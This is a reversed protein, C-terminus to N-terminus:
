KVIVVSGAKDPLPTYGIQQEACFRVVADRVGKYGENNFDHVMIYGGANLRPYFYVLGNYIPDYLDTDLSVFAFTDRVDDATEPFYGKKIICKGPHPMIALVQQVSTESFDQNATSYSEGLEKKKDRNDFGEFTDFLYLARDPFYANLYRAFKGKFVGVEAISGPVKREKIENSILELTSLRIYDYYRTDIKRNRSLYALSPAIAM